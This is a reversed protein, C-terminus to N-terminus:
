EGKGIAKLFEKYSKIYEIEKTKELKELISEAAGEAYDFQGQGKIMYIPSDTNFLAELNKLNGLGFPVDTVLIYDARKVMEINELHSKDDIESFPKCEVCSIGIMKSIDWDSDGKNVVGCTVEFGKSNLSELIQEGSGGGCIVHIRTRALETKGKIVRIPVVEKTSLMKNRRVLMEMEYVRGLYKEDIVQEPTGDVIVKKDNLLILRDSFRAAMNIDHLVALITVNRNKNLMKVLELVELQHHIDLHSTPEDLLIIKSQQAIARAIIVRQREGGSLQNFYRDKFQWTNTMLMAEYVIDYDRSPNKKDKSVHPNRGMMVIDFANFEFDVNFEQPVVAVLRAREKRSLKSNIKGDISIKGNKIDIIDTIAKILTSKGSGNPGIIGVFEGQNIGITLNELVTKEGYAVTINELSLQTIM